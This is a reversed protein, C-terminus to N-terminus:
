QQVVRVNQTYTFGGQTITLPVSLGQPTSSSVSINLVYWGVYGPVLGSFLVNAEVGGIKVIPNILTTALPSVPGPFGDSVPPDVAGLGTLYITLIDGRHVPNTSTVVLGNNWRVIAPVNAVGDLTTLFVAPAGTLVTMLFTNSVGGPTHLVLAVNGSAQSPMQANVQGPSVFMIHTPAGNVTLCSDALATPLPLENTAQNTASLNTGLLAMLGGPAVPSKLDAASVVSTIFPPAVAADYNPPLVTIGSTTLAVIESRSPLVILSRTFAQNVSGLVGAEVVGTPLVATGDATNVRALVGPSTSNQASLFLGNQDVFAFGSSTGSTPQIVATQVLSSDFIMNGIVYQGYSSAAYAGGLASFDKRSVTFSDVTADYLMVSGDKSAMMISSGNPAPAMVTNLPITNEYVGLRTYKSTTLDKLDVKHIQPEEGGGDRMVALIAKASSAISQVYSRPAYISELPTLTALDYVSLMHSNDCGVLLKTRDWTITMSMPKTCTRLTTKLTNNSGNFVLLQNLDQRLVYFEDKAPHSIMDVLTGPINVITGRQNPERSNVLVRVNNPINVAVTSTFSLQVAVTGKTDAFTTPDVKVTITAPTTGSSPSVTVGPNSSTISFPIKAGGAESLVFTQTAVTRDCFNGRFVLNELSTTLRPSLNLNGVPMILVGSDSSAYMTSRDSSLVARGALHEPLQLRDRLTLNDSDRVTLVPPDTLAQQVESFVLGRVSDVAHGGVNLTGLPNPFEAFHRGQQDTMIWGMAAYSGDQAVSVARPGQPPESGYGSSYLASAPVNYRFILNDGFGYIWLGDASAGVSAAVINTPFSQPPQPISKAAQDAISVLVRTTGTLPDFILFNTNTLVLARNDAGFALGLPPDPLMFTQAAYNNTLDILTLANAPTGPDAINGFHALLLWHGDPSVSISYPQPMVNISTQVSKTALSVVEIRNATFNAVYLVGRPEDLAVDSAHGGISVVKGFTAAMASYGPLVAFLTALLCFKRLM